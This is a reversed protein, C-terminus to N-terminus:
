ARVARFSDIALSGRGGRIAGLRIADVAGDAHVDAGARGNVVLTVRGRALRLTVRVTGQPLKRWSGGVRILGRRLEIATVPRGRLDVLELLRVTGRLVSARLALSINSRFLM